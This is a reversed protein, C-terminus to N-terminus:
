SGTENSKNKQLINIIGQLYADAKSKHFKCAGAGRHGGGEFKSLLLGVNVNCNRNLISHGVGIIVKEKEETDYRIRVNVVADPFLSYVLFRNGSPVEALSRFDSVSVNGKLQTHKQLLTRYTKNQEIAAACRNKVEPDEIVNGIDSKRLLEILRNWYPVDEKKKHSSITMSLMLYPYKEPYLVEELSLDAADIKDTERVLESYDRQFKDKYYKFIIGAASPAIEFAGRFPTTIRNTYHHDFWLSCDKHFPLNAIIDGERVAALGKQMENPEVWNVPETLDLAEYLLVACVISDFDARTVVRM